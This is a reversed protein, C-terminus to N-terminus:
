YRRDPAGWLASRSAARTFLYWSIFTCCHCFACLLSHFRMFGPVFASYQLLTGQEARTFTGHYRSVCSVLANRVKWVPKQKVCTKRPIFCQVSCVHQTVAFDCTLFKYSIPESRHHNPLYQRTHHYATYNRLYSGVNRLFSSGKYEPYVQMRTTYMCMDGEKHRIISEM